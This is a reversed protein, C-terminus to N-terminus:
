FQQQHFNRHTQLQKNNIGYYIIGGICYLMVDVIDSTYKTSFQPLIYEFVVSVYVVVFAIMSTTFNISHNRKIFRLCALTTHLLIPICLLDALYSEILTNYHINNMKAAALFLYLILGSLYYKNLLIKM